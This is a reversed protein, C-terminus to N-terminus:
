AHRRKVNWIFHSSLYYNVIFALGIGLLQALLYFVGLTSLIIFTGFIVIQSVASAGQYRVFNGVHLGVKKNLNKLADKYGRFTYLNHLLFNWAISIQIAFFSIVLAESGTYNRIAWLSLLNVVTGSAGVLLFRLIQKVPSDDNLQYSIRFFELIDKLKAKSSGDARNHFSIPVEEVKLNGKSFSNALFIQFGYGNAKVKKYDIKSLSEKKIARFNTTLEKISPNIGGVMRAVMTAARTRIILALPWNGPILGGDTYRSGIAVDTGRNMAELLKPIDDPSHSFDADMTMIADCKFTLAKDFSRQLAKGLGDKKGSSLFLKNKYQTRALERVIAGTGDPSRDDRVLVKIKWGISKLDLSFISELLAAINGAENYTPVILVAQRLKKHGKRTSQGM